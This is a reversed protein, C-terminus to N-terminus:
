ICCAHGVSQCAVVDKLISLYRPTEQYTLLIQLSSCKLYSIMINQVYVFQAFRSGTSDSHVSQMPDGSRYFISVVGRRQVEVDETMVMVM